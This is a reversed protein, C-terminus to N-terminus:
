LQRYSGTRTGTSLDHIAFGSFSQPVCVRNNRAARIALECAGVNGGSSFEAIRRKSGTSTDYMVGVLTSGPARECALRSQYPHTEVTGLAQTLWGTREPTDGEGCAGAGLVLATMLGRRTWTGMDCGGEIPLGRRGC